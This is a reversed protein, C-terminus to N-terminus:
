TLGRVIVVVVILLLFLAVAILGPRVLVRKPRPAPVPVVPQGEARAPEICASLCLAIVHFQPRPDNTEIRVVGDHKGSVNANLQVAFPANREFFLGPLPGKRARGNVEFTLWPPLDAFRVVLPVSSNNAIALKYPRSGNGLDFRRPVPSGNFDMEAIPFARRTTMRVMLEEVRSTGGDDIQFRIFGRFESEGDHVAVLELVEGATGAACSVDRHSSDRWTATLWPPCESIRIRVTESGLNIVRVLRCERGPSQATGFDLYCGGTHSELAAGAFALQSAPVPELWTRAPASLAGLFHRELALVSDRSLNM